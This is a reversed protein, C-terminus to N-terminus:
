RGWGKEERGVGGLVCGLRRSGEEVEEGAREECEELKDAGEKGRRAKGPLNSLEEVRAGGIPGQKCLPRLTPGASFAGRAATSLPGEDKHEM